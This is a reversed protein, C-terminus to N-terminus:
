APTGPLEEPWPDTTTWLSRVGQASSNNTLMNITTIRGGSVLVEPHNDGPRGRFGQGSFGAPFPSNLQQSAVVDTAVVEVIAGLRRIKWTGVARSSGLGEAALASIDRWGTDQVAPAPAVVPTAAGEPLTLNLIFYPAEGTITAAPEGM